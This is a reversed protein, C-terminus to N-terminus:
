SPNKRRPPLPYGHVDQALERSTKLAQSNVIHNLTNYHYGLEAALRKTTVGRERLLLIRERVPAASTTRPQWKRIALDRLAAERCPDCGCRHYNYVHATGHGKRKSCDCDVVAFRTRHAPM